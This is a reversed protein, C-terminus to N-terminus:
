NLLEDSLRSAWDVLMKRISSIELYSKQLFDIDIDEQKYLPHKKIQKLAWDILSNEAQILEYQAELYGVDVVIKQKTEVAHEFDKKFMEEIDVAISRSELEKQAVCFRNNAEIYQKQRQFLDM